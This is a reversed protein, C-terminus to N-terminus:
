SGCMLFPSFEGEGDFVLQLQDYAAFDKTAPPHPFKEEPVGKAAFTEFSGQGDLPHFILKSSLREVRPKLVPFSAVHVQVNQRTSAELAMALITNSQGSEANTVFLLKKTKIDAHGNTAGM